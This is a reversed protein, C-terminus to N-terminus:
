RCRTRKSTKKVLTPATGQGPNARSVPRDSQPTHSIPPDISHHNINHCSVSECTNLIKLFRLWAEDGWKANQCLYCKRLCWSVSSQKCRGIRWRAFFMAAFNRGAFFIWRCTWSKHYRMGGVWRIASSGWKRRQRRAGILSLHCPACGHLGGSLNIWLLLLVLLCPPFSPSLPNCSEALATAPCVIMQTIAPFLFPPFFMSIRWLCNVQVRM